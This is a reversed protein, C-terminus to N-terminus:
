KNNSGHEANIKGNALTMIKDAFQYALDVNHTILLITQNYKLHQKYMLETIHLSSDPDLGACPEDYIVLPKKIINARAIAAKQVMGGSLQYPYYKAYISDLQWEAMQEYVLDKINKVKKQSLPFAINDYVTMDRFLAGKQLVVSIQDIYKHKDKHHIPIEYGLVSIKGTFHEIQLTIIKMITTKGSGSKGIIAVFEQNKVKFNLNQLIAQSQNEYCFCVDIFELMM